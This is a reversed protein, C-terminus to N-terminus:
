GEKIQTLDLVNHSCHMAPIINRYKCITAINGMEFSKINEVTM